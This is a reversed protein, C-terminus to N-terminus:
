VDLSGGFPNGHLFFINELIKDFLGHSPKASPVLRSVSACRESQSLCRQLYLGQSFWSAQEENPGMFTTSSNGECPLPPRNGVAVGTTLSLHPEFRPLWRQSGKILQM